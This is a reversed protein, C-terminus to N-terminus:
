WMLLGTVYGAIKLHISDLWIETIEMEFSHHLFWYMYLSPLKQKIQFEVPIDKTSHLRM